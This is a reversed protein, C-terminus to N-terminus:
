DVSVPFIYDCFKIISPSALQYDVAQYGSKKKSIKVSKQYEDKGSDKGFPRSTVPVNLGSTIFHINTRTRPSKCQNNNTSTALEGENNKDDEASVLESEKQTPIDDVWKQLPEDIRRSLRTSAHDQFCANTMKDMAKQFLLSDHSFADSIINQTEDLGIISSYTKKENTAGKFYAQYPHLTVVTLEDVKKFAQSRNKSYKSLNKKSKDSLPQWVGHMLSNIFTKPLTDVVHVDFICQITKKTKNKSTVVYIRTMDLKVADLYVREM